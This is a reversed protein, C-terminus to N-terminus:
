GGWEGVVCDEPCPLPEFKTALSANPTSSAMTSGAPLFHNAHCPSMRSVQGCGRGGADAPAVMARTCYQVGGGCSKSCPSCEGWPSVGWPSMQCDVPCRLGDAFCKRVMQLAGCGAGDFKAPTVIKRTRHQLAASGCTMMGCSSWEGWDGSRCDRPCPDAEGCARSAELAGCSAGGYVSPVLVTRTCSQTGAGCTRSCVSCSLWESLVCDIPCLPLSAECNSKEETKPCPKGGYRPPATVLRVRTRLESPPVEGNGDGDGDFGGDAHCSQECASWVQWDGVACAQPCPPLAPLCTRSKLFVGGPGPNAPCPKGGHAPPSIIERKCIQQGGSGASDTADATSCLLSCPTCAHWESLVCDRPCEKQYLYQGGEASVSAKASAGWTGFVGKAGVNASPSNGDRRIGVCSQSVSLDGCSKGGWQPKRTAKRWRHRFGPEGGVTGCSISCAGWPTWDGKTCDVPCPRANCTQSRKRLLPCAKGGRKAPQLVSRSTSQKGSTVKSPDTTNSCRQSCPSWPEWPSMACDHPCPADGCSRSRSYPYMVLPHPCSKGGNKPHTILHQQHSQQGGGCSVECTSWESWSSVQCDVPCEPLANCPMTGSASPCTKGLANNRRIVTHSCRKTPPGSSASAGGSSSKKGGNFWADLSGLDSSVLRRGYGYGGSAKTMPSTTAAKAFSPQVCSVSCPGCETKVECDFPCIAINCIRILSITPCRKGGYRSRTLVPRSQVLHGGGCTKSCQGKEGLEDGARWKGVVCDVPCPNTSEGDATSSLYSKHATSAPVTTSNAGYCHASDTSSGCKQGGRSSQLEM